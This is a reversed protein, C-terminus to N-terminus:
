TTLFNTCPAALSGELSEGVMIVDNVRQKFNETEEEECICDLNASANDELLWSPEDLESNQKMTSIIFSKKCPLRHKLQIVITNTRPYVKNM